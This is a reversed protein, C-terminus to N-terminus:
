IGQKKRAALLVHEALVSTTVAGVGGPVPTALSAASSISELDVDGCLNGDEMVHIGVDIVVAGQGVYKRDIMKPQGAAAILIEANQCVEELQKTKTHCVTVTANEKMLLMALPKGIVLSRGVVVARKGSIEVGSYHLMKMVAEATCPAYGGPLGAYVHAMNVPSIGDMDKQPDIRREIMAGDLQPPLPRLLLIGDVDPDGNIRDFTELFAEQSVQEEMVSVTHHIGVKEMRKIAGREYSLDDPREGVRIIALHPPRMGTKEITESIERSIAAAVSAGKIFEMM